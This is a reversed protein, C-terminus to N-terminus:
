AIRFPRLGGPLYLPHRPSGDANLHLAYLEHGHQRLMACVDSGRQRLKKHPQGYAVVIVNSAAAMRLIYSDNSPGVPDDVAILQRQDTARYAFTNAVYLSGSGWGRAFAQCRAVTPDDTDIDAVSPNMMVFMSVPLADDWTRRLVYRYEGHAGGFLAYGEVGAALKRTVRGGPDHRARDKASDMLGLKCAGPSGVVRCNQQLVERALM